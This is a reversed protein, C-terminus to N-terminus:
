CFWAYEATQPLTFLSPLSYVIATVVGSPEIFLLQFLLGNGMKERSFISDLAEVKVYAEWLVPKPMAIDLCQHSRAFALKRSVLSFLPPFDDQIDGYGEKQSLM